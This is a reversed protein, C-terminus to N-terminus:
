VNAANVRGGKERPHHLENSLEKTPKRAVEFFFFFFFFFNGDQQVAGRFHAFVSNPPEYGATDFPMKFEIIREPGAEAQYKPSYIATRESSCSALFPPVFRPPSSWRPFANKVMIQQFNDM